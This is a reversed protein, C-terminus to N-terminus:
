LVDVFSSIINVINVQKGCDFKYKETNRIIVTELFSNKTSRSSGNTQVMKINDIKNGVNM